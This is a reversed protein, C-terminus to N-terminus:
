RSFRVGPATSLGKTSVIPDYRFLSSIVPPISCSREWWTGLVQNSSHRRTRFQRYEVPLYGLAEGREVRPQKAPNIYRRKLRPRSNITIKRKRANKPLRKITPQAIEIAGNYISQICIRKIPPKVSRTTQIIQNRTETETISLFHESQLIFTIHSFSFLHTSIRAKYVHVVNSNVNQFANQCIM